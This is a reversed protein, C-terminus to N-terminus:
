FLRARISKYKYGEFKEEMTEYPTLQYKAELQKMERKRKHSNQEQFGQTIQALYAEKEQGTMEGRPPEIRYPYYYNETTGRPPGLQQPPQQYLPNRLADDRLIENQRIREKQKQHTLDSYAQAERSIYIQPEFRGKYKIAPHNVAETQITKLKKKGAPHDKRVRMRWSPPSNLINELERADDGSDIHQEKRLHPKEPLHRM